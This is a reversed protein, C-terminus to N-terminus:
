KKISDVAAKLQDLAHQLVKRPCGLNLRMCGEGGPGFAVGDNLALRANNVFLDILKDHDLGLKNCNLWMLFSAQPRVATIQPIKLSIYDYVFDVNEEVYKLMESRWQGCKTFAAETAVESIFPVACLENAELYDFFIERIEPNHVVVFSSPIGAMNFTKSPAAFTISINAAIESAKPFPTHVNGFLTMDAHIEDSIVLVHYRACIEAVRELTRKPWVVGAPNHPNSLILIRPNERRCVNELGGLDMEYTGTAVNYELPNFVLRRDNNVPLNLFPMYVPPQVLIRDGPETFCHLVFSIGRVIGPIYRLEERTFDWDHMQKEWNIISAWYSDHPKSYGYIQHDLRKEIADRIPDPTKFDMDAIWLGLLDDRGYRATLDDTKLAGSGRRDILKDFNYKM